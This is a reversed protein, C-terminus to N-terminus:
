PREFEWQEEITREALPEAELREDGIPLGSDVSMGFTGDVLRAEARRVSALQDGLDAALALAVTEADLIGGAEEYEGTQQRQLSGGARLDGGVEALMLEVRARERTVLQRARAEKM